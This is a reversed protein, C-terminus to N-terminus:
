DFFDKHPVDDDWYRYRAALFHDIAQIDPTRQRLELGVGQIFVPLGTIRSFELDDVRFKNLPVVELGPSEPESRLAKFTARAQDGRQGTVVLDRDMGTAQLRHNVAISAVCNLIHWDLWGRSRLEEVTQCFEASERLRALTLPFLESVREYRTQIASLAEEQSYTPGPGSQWPLETSPQPVYGVEEVEAPLTIKQRLDDFENHAVWRLLADFPLGIGIKDRLGQEFAYEIKAMFEEIPLLSAESLILSLVTLLEMHVAEVEANESWPTLLVEWRRTENSPLARAREDEAIAVSVHIVIETQLLALDDSALEALLVQAASALRQAAMESEPENESVITFTIGLGTFRIRLEDKSDGFFEGYLQPCVETIWNKPSHGDNDRVLEEEVFDWMGAKQLLDKVKKGLDPALDRGARYVWALEFAMRQIRSDDLDLALVLNSHLLLGTEATGASTTWNGLLYDMHAALCVGQAFLDQLDDDGSDAAIRATLLLWHKAAHLFGLQEYCEALLFMSLLSGRLSDGSWWGVKAQHLERLAAVCCNQKRLNIARDRCRAAAAARGGTKELKADVADVIERYCPHLAILPAIVSLQGAFRDIPFLQAEDFTSTMEVWASMGSDIDFLKNALEVDTAEAAIDLGADDENELLDTVDPIRADSVKIQTPDPQLNLVGLLQLLMARRNASTTENKLAEVRERLRNNWDCLREAALSTCSFRFAGICYMLLVCGDELVFIDDAGCSLEIFDAALADAPTLEGTGRLTAVSVEYRARRQLDEDFHPELFQRMLALWFPLDPRATNNFTAHRLGPKISLFDALTNVPTCERWVNRIESYWQPTEDAVPPPKLEAPLSLYRQTIWFLDPQSLEQAIARSDFVELDLGYEERIADQLKHRQGVPIDVAVFAYIRDVRSGYGMVTNVDSKIKTFLGNPQLTCVFALTEESARGLFAGNPGLERVLYTRFTELDRGQDGGAGVPGTAPVVNTAVRARVFHRVLEEFEHHANRGSLDGLSFRIITSLEEASM